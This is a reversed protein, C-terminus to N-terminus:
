ATPHTFIYLDIAEIIGDSLEKLIYAYDAVTVATIDYEYILSRLVALCATKNKIPSANVIASIQSFINEIPIVPNNALTRLKDAILALTDISEPHNELYASTAVLAASKPVTFSLDEGEPKTFTCSSVLMALGAIAVATLHKISM